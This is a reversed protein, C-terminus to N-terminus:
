GKSGEKVAINDVVWKRVRSFRAEPTEGGYPGAEDNIWEIEQILCEAVDFRQALIDHREPDLTEIDSVQRSKGVCGLLCVDGGDVLLEPILRKEQMADLVSLCDRLLAQGRKGRISSAVRGRWMALDRQDIEDTYGSRM